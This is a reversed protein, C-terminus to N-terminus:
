QIQKEELETFDINNIKGNKINLINVNDINRKIDEKKVDDNENDSVIIIANRKNEIPDNKHRFICKNYKHKPCTEDSNNCFSSKFKPDKKKEEIIYEKYSKDLNYNKPHNFDCNPNICKLKYKCNDKKKSYNKLVIIKKNDLIIKKINEDYNQCTNNRKGKSLFVIKSNKINYTYYSDKNLIEYMDNINNFTNKIYNEFEDFQSVTIWKNGDYFIKINNQLDYNEKELSDNNDKNNTEINNSFCHLLINNNRNKEIIYESFIKETKEDKNSYTVDIKYYSTRTDINIKYINFKDLTIINKVYKICRNIDEKKIDDM